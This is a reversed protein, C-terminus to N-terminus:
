ATKSRNCRRMPLMAQRLLIMPDGEGVDVYHMQFHGLNLYSPAYPFQGAFTEDKIELM